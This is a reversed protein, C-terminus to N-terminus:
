YLLSSATLLDERRKNPLNHIDKVKAIREKVLMLTKKDINKAIKGLNEEAKSLFIKLNEDDFTFDSYSSYLCRKLDTIVDFRNPIHTM